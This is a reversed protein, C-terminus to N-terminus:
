EKLVDENRAAQNIGPVVKNWKVKMQQDDKPGAM